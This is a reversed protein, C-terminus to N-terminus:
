WLFFSERLRCGLRRYCTQGPICTYYYHCFILIHLILPTLNDNADRLTKYYSRGYNPPVQQSPKFARSQFSVFNINPLSAKREREGWETILLKKLLFPVYSTILKLSPTKQSGRLLYSYSNHIKHPRHWLPSIDAQWLPSPFSALRPKWSASERGREGVPFGSSNVCM